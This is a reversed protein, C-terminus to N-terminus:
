AKGGEPRGTYLATLKDAVARSSFDERVLQRGAARMAALQSDPMAIARELVMALHAPDPTTELAAGATFGRPLNCEPTLIAPLGASWGEVVSMPLGESYSPLVMFSSSSLSRWKEEGYQPGAYTINDLRAEMAALREEFGDIGDNWGCLVLRAKDRIDPSRECLMEWADCLENIGKKEHLRGLFLIIRRNDDRSQWWAPRQTDQTEDRLPVYHGIIQSQADPLADAIDVVEKATLAQLGISHRMLDRLYLRWVTGKLLRSRNLIWRELMGHPTVVVPRGTHKHWIWAACAHFTWIGHVHLVDLDADLLQRVMAPALGYRPGGIVPAIHWPLPPFAKRDEELRDDHTSFLVIDQQGHLILAECALRAAESVGGNLRSLTHAIMGIKM